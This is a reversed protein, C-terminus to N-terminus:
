KLIREILEKEKELFFKPKLYIFGKEINKDYVELFDTLLDKQQTNKPEKANLLYNEISEILLANFNLNKPYDRYDLDGVGECVGFFVGNFKFFNKQTFPLKLKENAQVEQTHILVGRYDFAELVGIADFVVVRM